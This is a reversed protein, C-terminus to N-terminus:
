WDKERIKKGEHWLRLSTILKLHTLWDSIVSKKDADDVILIRIYDKYFNWSAEEKGKFGGNVVM